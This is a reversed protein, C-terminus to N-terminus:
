AVKAFNRAWNEIASKAVSGDSKAKLDGSKIAAKIDSVKINKKQCIPLKTADQYTLGILNKAENESSNEAHIARPKPAIKIAPDTNREGSKEHLVQGFQDYIKEPKQATKSPTWLLNEHSKQESIGPQASQVKAMKQDIKTEFTTQIAEVKKDMESSLNAQMGQLFTEVKQMMEQQDVQAPQPLFPIIQRVIEQYDPQTSQPLNALVSTTIKQYDVVPIKATLGAQIKAIQPALLEGVKEALVEYDVEAPIVSNVSFAPVLNQLKKGVGAYILSLLGYIWGALCRLNIIDTTAQVFDGHHNALNTITVWTLYFFFSTPISFLVAWAWGVINKPHLRVRYWHWIVNVVANALILEPILALIVLSLWVFYQMTTESMFLEVLGPAVSTASMWLVAVLLASEAVYGSVRVAWQTTKVLFHGNFFFGMVSGIIVLTGHINPHREMLERWFQAAASEEQGQVMAAM